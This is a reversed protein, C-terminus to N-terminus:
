SPGHLAGDCRFESPTPTSEVSSHINASGRASGHLCSICSHHSKGTPVPAVSVEDLYVVALAFLSPIGMQGPKPYGHAVLNALAIDHTIHTARTNGGPGM